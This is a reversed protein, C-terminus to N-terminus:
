PIEKLEEQLLNKLFQLRPYISNKIYDGSTKATECLYDYEGKNLRGIWVENQFDYEHVVRFYHCLGDNMFYARLIEMDWEERYATEYQAIAKKLIEIDM